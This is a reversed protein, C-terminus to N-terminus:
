IFIKRLYPVGIYIKGTNTDGLHLHGGGLIYSKENFDNEMTEQLSSGFPSGWYM